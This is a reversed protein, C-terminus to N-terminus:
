ESVMGYVLSEFLTEANISVDVQELSPALNAVRVYVTDAEDQALVVPSVIWLCVLSLMFHRLM